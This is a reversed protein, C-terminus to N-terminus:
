DEFILKTKVLKNKKGVMTVMLRGDDYKFPQGEKDLKCMVYADSRDEVMIFLGDNYSQTESASKMYYVDREM